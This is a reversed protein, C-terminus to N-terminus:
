KIMQKSLCHDIIQLENQGAPWHRPSKLEDWEREYYQELFTRDSIWGVEGTVEWGNQLRQRHQGFLRFRYDEEPTITRRGLGLNDLGTDKIGWFDWNGQAPGEHGLIENRIYLFNTGHGFGRDSLYDLSIGWDTGQPANRIGFLQYADLDTLVQTGFISDNGVRIGDIFFSPKSLDTLM